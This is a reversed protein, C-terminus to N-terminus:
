NTKYIVQNKEYVMYKTVFLCSTSDSFICDFLKGKMGSTYPRKRSFKTLFLQNMIEEPVSADLANIATLVMTPWREVGRNLLGAV